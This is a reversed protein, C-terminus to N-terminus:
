IHSKEFGMWTVQGHAVNRPIFLAPTTNIMQREEGVYGEIEVGLYEPNHPDTRGERSVKVM